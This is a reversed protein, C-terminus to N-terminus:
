AICIVPGDVAFPSDHRAELEPSPDHRRANTAGLPGIRQGAQNEIYERSPKEDVAGVPGM